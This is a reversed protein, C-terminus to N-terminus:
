DEDLEQIEVETYNEMNLWSAAYSIAEDENEAEVEMGASIILNVDFKPM